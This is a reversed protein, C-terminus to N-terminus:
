VDDEGLVMNGSLKLPARTIPSEGSETHDQLMGQVFKVKSPETNPTFTSGCVPCTFKTSATVPVADSDPKM